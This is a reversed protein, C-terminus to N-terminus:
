KKFLADYLKRKRENAIAGYKLFYENIFNIEDQISDSNPSKVLNCFFNKCKILHKKRAASLKRDEITLEFLEIAREFSNQCYKNNKINTSKFTRYVESGINGMQDLYNLTHWKEAKM